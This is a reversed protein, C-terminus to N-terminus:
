RRPFLYRAVVVLLATVSATTTTAVAILVSDSLNFRGRPGLFGQLLLLLIISALWFVVLLFIRKAYPRREGRDQIAAALQESKLREDFAIAEPDVESEGRAAEQVPEESLIKRLLDENFAVRLDERRDPDAPM